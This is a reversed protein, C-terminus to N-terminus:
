KKSDARNILNQCVDDLDKVTEIAKALQRQVACQELIQGKEELFTFGGSKGAGKLIQALRKLLMYDENDLVDRISNVLGPLRQMLREAIGSSLPVDMLDQHDQLADSSERQRSTHAMEEIGAPPDSLSHKQPLYRAIAEYLSRRTIPKYLYEDFGADFCGQESSKRVDATVGIVPCQIKRERMIRVTEGGDMKPMHYDMVVLDYHKRALKELAANGDGVVDVDLCIRRLLLNMLVQSAPNDEVVLIAGRCELCDIVGYDSVRRKRNTMVADREAQVGSLESQCTVPFVLSFVSGKGPRSTVEIDGGLLTILRKTIALGLGTGGYKRTTSAEAQSFPNFIMDTKDPEIGIGTDEVDIQLWQSSNKVSPAVRIMVSGEHTFKVANVTLNLICQRLRVPDTHIVTPCDKSIMIDFDIEKKSAHLCIIERVEDLLHYLDSEMKEITLM